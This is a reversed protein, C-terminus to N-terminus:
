VIQNTDIVQNYFPYQSFYKMGQPLIQRCIILALISKLYMEALKWSTILLKTSLKSNILWCVLLTDTKDKGKLLSDTSEISVKLQNPKEPAMNFHIKANLYRYLQGFAIVEIVKSVTPLFSITRYNEMVWNGGNQFPYFKTSKKNMQFYLYM